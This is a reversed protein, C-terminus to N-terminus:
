VKCKLTSKSSENNWSIDVSVTCPFLQDSTIHATDSYQLMNVAYRAAHHRIHIICDLAFQDDHSGSRSLHCIKNTEDGALAVKSSERETEDGDSKKM